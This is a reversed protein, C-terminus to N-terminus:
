RCSLPSSAIRSARSCWGSQRQQVDAHLALAPVVHRGHQALRRLRREHEQANASSSVTAWTLASPRHVVQDLRRLHALDQRRGPLRQGAQPLPRRAPLARDAAVPDTTSRRWRPRCGSAAGTARTRDAAAWRGSRRAPSSPHADLCHGIPKEVCRLQETRAPQVSRKRTRAAVGRQGAGARHLPLQQGSRGGVRGLGRRRPPHDAAGLSVSGPTQFTTPATCASSSASCGTRSACASAPATTACPSCTRDQRCLRSREFGSEPTARAPATFKWANGLLNELVVRLLPRTARCSCGARSTSSFRAGPRAACTGSSTLLSSRCTSRSAGAAPVVALSRSCRRDDREDAGGCRLVRDLHDNGIRDLQRGYDREPDQHLRRQRGSPARLDHSVTYSFSESDANM